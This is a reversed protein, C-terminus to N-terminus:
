SGVEMTEARVADLGAGSSPAVGLALVRRRCVVLVVASMELDAHDLPKAHVSRPSLWRRTYEAGRLQPRPQSQQRRPRPQWLLHRIEQAQGASSVANSIMAQDLKATNAAQM